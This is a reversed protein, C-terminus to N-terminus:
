VVLLKFTEKERDIKEELEVDEPMNWKSWHECDTYPQKECTILVMRDALQKEERLVTCSCKSKHCGLDKAKTHWLSKDRRMLLIIFNNPDYTYYFGFFKLIQLKYATSMKSYEGRMVTDYDTVCSAKELKSNNDYPTDNTINYCFLVETESIDITKIYTNGNLDQTLREELDKFLDTDAWLYRLVLSREATFEDTAIYCDVLHTHILFNVGTENPESLLPLIYWYCLNYDKYKEKM